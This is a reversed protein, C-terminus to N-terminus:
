QFYELLKIVREILGSFGDGVKNLGELHKQTSALLDRSPKGGTSRAKELEALQERLKAAEGSGNAHEVLQRLLELVEQWPPEVTHSSDRSSPRLDAGVAKWLSKIQAVLKEPTMGGLVQLAVENSTHFLPVQLEDALRFRHGHQPASGFVVLTLAQLEAGVNRVDQLAQLLDAYEQKSLPGTKLGAKTADPSFVVTAYLARELEADPSLGELRASFTGEAFPTGTSDASQLRLRGGALVVSVISAMLMAAAEDNEMEPIPVLGGQSDISVMRCACLLYLAATASAAANRTNEDVCAKLAKAHCNRLEQMTQPLRDVQEQMLWEILSRPSCIAADTAWAKLNKSAAVENRIEPSASLLEVSHDIQHPLSAPKLIDCTDTPAVPTSKSVSNKQLAEPVRVPTNGSVHKMLLEREREWEYDPCDFQLDQPICSREAGDKRVTAIWGHNHNKQFYLTHTLRISEHAVGFGSSVTEDRTWLAAYKESALCLVHDAEALATSMWTRWEAPSLKRGQSQQHRVDLLVSVGAADIAQALSTVSVTDWTPDDAAYSIFVKKLIAGKKQEVSV